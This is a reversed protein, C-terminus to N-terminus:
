PVIKSEILAKLNLYEKNKISIKLANNISVHAKEYKEAGMQILADMYFSRAEMQPDSELDRACRFGLGVGYSNNMPDNWFRHTTTISSAPAFWSGGRIVKKKGSIHKGALTSASGLKLGFKPGQPNRVNKSEEYYNPDYWDQVWEFVNGAMNYAGYYSKGEPHSDVPTTIHGQGTKGKAFNAKGYDLENGWPYISGAPGRAAKEWEAETPLRKNAWHCYANADYWNVGTAPQRPQNLQHHDWYAPAPYDTVKIFETFEDNSVEFKDIFYSSLYIMKAPREDDFAKKSYSLKIESDNATKGINNESSNKDIGRVFGGANVLVMNDPSVTEAMGKGPVATGTFGMFLLCIFIKRLFSNIIDNV